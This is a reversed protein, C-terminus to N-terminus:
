DFEARSGFIRIVRAATLTTGTLVLLTGGITKYTCFWTGMYDPVIWVTGGGLVSPLVIQIGPWTACDADAMGGSLESWKSQASVIFASKTAWIAEPTEAAQARATLIAPVFDVAQSTATVALVTSYADPTGAVLFADLTPEAVIEYCPQTQTGPCGLGVVVTAYPTYTPMPTYTPYPTVSPTPTITPTNTATPVPTNTPTPTATAGYDGDARWGLGVVACGWSTTPYVEGSGYYGIPCSSSPAGVFTYGVEGSGDFATNSHLQTTGSYNFYKITGSPFYAVLRYRKNTGGATLMFPASGLTSVNYTSWTGTTGTTIDTWTFMPVTTSVSADYLKFKTPTAQGSQWYWYVHILELSKGAPVEIDYGVTLNGSTSGTGRTTDPVGFETWTYAQAVPVGSGVGFVAGFMCVVVLVRIAVRLYGRRGALRAYVWWRSFLRMVRGGMSCM